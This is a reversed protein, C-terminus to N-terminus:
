KLTENYINEVKIQTQVINNNLRDLYEELKEGSCNARLDNNYKKLNAIESMIDQIRLKTKDVNNDM